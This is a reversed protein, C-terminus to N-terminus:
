VGVELERRLDALAPPSLEYLKRCCLDYAMRCVEGRDRKPHLERLALVLQAIEAEYGLTMQGQNVIFTTIRPGRTAM